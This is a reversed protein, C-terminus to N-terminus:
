NQVIRSLKGSSGFRDLYNAIRFVQTHILPRRSVYFTLKCIHFM